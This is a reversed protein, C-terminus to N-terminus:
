PHGARYSPNPATQYKCLRSAQLHSMLIQWRGDKQMRSYTRPLLSTSFPLEPVESWPMGHGLKHLISSIVTRLSFQRPIQSPKELLPQLSQWEDDSLSYCDKDPRRPLNNEKKTLPTVRHEAHLIRQFEILKTHQSYAPYPEETTELLKITLETILFQNGFSIGRGYFSLSGIPLRMDLRGQRAYELVSNWARRASPFCYLWSLSNLIGEAKDPQLGTHGRASEYFRIEPKSSNDIDFPLILNDLGQPALLYRSMGPFPRFLACMLVGIPILFTQQGDAFRYVSQGSLGHDQPTFGLTKLAATLEDNSLPVWTQLSSQGKCTLKRDGAENNCLITPLATIPHQGVQGDQNRTHIVYSGAFYSLREICQM